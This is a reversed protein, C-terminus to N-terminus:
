HRDNDTTGHTFHTLATTSIFRALVAREYREMRAGHPYGKLHLMGHIFLYLSFHTDSLGHEPAERAAILPCIIIEGHKYGVQYSLVNPVYDKSRLAQNLARARRTGVFVLSLEWDPLVYEAAKIFSVGPM